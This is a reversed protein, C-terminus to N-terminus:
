RGARAGVRAARSAKALALEGASAGTEMFFNIELLLSISAALDLWLFFHTYGAVTIISVVMEVVFIAVLLLTLIDVIIDSDKNGFILNMDNAVLALVTAVLLLIQFPGANLFRSLLTTMKPNYSNRRKKGCLFIKQKSIEKETCIGQELDDLDVHQNQMPVLSLKRVKENEHAKVANAPIGPIADPTEGHPAQDLVDENSSVNERVGKLYAIISHTSIVNQNQM